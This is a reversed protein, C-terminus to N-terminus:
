FNYGGKLADYIGGCCSFEKEATKTQIAVRWIKTLLSLFYVNKERLTFPDFGSSPVGPIINM